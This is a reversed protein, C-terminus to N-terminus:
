PSAKAGHGAEREQARAGALINTLSYNGEHCAFELMPASTTKLPMEGRWPRTYTSPDDVQYAYLIEDRGTRTFRETIKADASIRIWDGANWRWGDSPSLNTTEVVLTDDEWWGVSDGM